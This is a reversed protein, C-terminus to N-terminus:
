PLLRRHYQRRLAVVRIVLETRNRVEFKLLLRSINNRITLQSLYLRQGIERNSLGEFLLRIIRHEQDTLRVAQRRKWLETRHYYRRAAILKIVLETRNRAEFKLLLQSLYNRITLQSLHLRQSIEPNSLGEFLLQVVDQERNTLHSAQQHGSGAM